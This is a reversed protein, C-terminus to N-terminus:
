PLMPPRIRTAGSRCFRSIRPSVEISPGEIEGKYVVQVFVRCAHYRFPV